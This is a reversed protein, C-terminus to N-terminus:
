NENNQKEKTADGETSTISNAQTMQGTFVM